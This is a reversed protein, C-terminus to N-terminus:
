RDLFRFMDPERSLLWGPGTKTSRVDVLSLASFAESRLRAYEENPLKLADALDRAATVRDLADFSRGVRPSARRAAAENVYAHFLQVTREREAAKTKEHAQEVKERAKKEIERGEKEQERGKAELTARAEAEMLFFALLVPVAVFLAILT